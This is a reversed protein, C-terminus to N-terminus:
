DRIIWSLSILTAYSSFRGWPMDIGRPWGAFMLFMFFVERLAFYVSLLGYLFTMLSCAYDEHPNLLYPTLSHLSAGQNIYFLKMFVEVLLLYFRILAVKNYSPYLAFYRHKFSTEQYSSSLLVELLFELIYSLYRLSLISGQSLFIKDQSDFWVFISIM